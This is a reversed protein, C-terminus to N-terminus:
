LDLVAELFGAERWRDRELGGERVTSDGSMGSSESSLTLEPSRVVVDLLDLADTGLSGVERGGDRVRAATLGAGALGVAALELLLVAALELLVRVVLFTVGAELTAPVPSLTFLSFVGPAPSSSSSLATFAEPAFAAADPDLTGVRVKRAAVWVRAFVSTFATGSLDVRTLRVVRFM